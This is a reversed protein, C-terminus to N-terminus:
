GDLTREINEKTSKGAIRGPAKGPDEALWIISSDPLAYRTRAADVLAASWAHFSQVYKPEGALGSIVVLRTQAYSAPLPVLSATTCVLMVASLVRTRRGADRKARGRAWLAGVRLASM